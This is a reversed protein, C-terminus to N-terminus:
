RVEVVFSVLRVQGGRQFEAWLKYFGPAPFLTNFDTSKKSGHVRLFRSGAEDVIALHGLGGLYPELDLALAGSATDAVEFRLTQYQGAPFPGPTLLTVTM